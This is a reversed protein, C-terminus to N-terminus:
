IVREVIVISYRSSNKGEPGSDAQLAASLNSGMRFTVLREFRATTSTDCAHRRRATGSSSPRTGGCSIHRASWPAM